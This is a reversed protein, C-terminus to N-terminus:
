LASKQLQYRTTTKQVYNIIYYEVKVILWLSIEIFNLDNVITRGEDRLAFDGHVTEPGVHGNAMWDAYNNRRLPKTHSNLPSLTTEM